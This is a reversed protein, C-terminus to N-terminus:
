SLALKPPLVGKSLFEVVKNFAKLLNLCIAKLTFQAQTKVLGFYSARNFKFKRKLTGFDQEVVFRHKSILKNFNKQSDRLKKGKGFTRIMLGDKFGKKKLLEKNAKSYYAKDASVRKAKIGDTMKDLEKGESEHAPTTHTKNIYGEEDVTAFGKYGFVSKKGKKVWRADKDTSFSEKYEQAEQEDEERDNVIEKEIVKSPHAACTVLTADIIAHEARELKLSRAELQSNVARLLGEYGNCGVLLNRYKCLTTEDPFNDGLHFGTFLMFDLRVRLSEELGPDSLSYWSGLLLSKFLSLESYGTRGLPGRLKFSKLLLEIESWDLLKDLNILFNKGGLREYSGYDFLSLM